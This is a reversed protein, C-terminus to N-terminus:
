LFFFRYGSLLSFETSKVEQVGVFSLELNIWCPQSTYFTFILFLQARLDSGLPLAFLKGM